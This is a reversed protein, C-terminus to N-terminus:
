RRLPPLPRGNVRVKGRIVDVVLEQTSLPLGLWLAVVTPVDRWVFDGDLRRRWHAQEEPDDLRAVRLEDLHRPDFILVGEGQVSVGLMPSDLDVRSIDLRPSDQLLAKFEPELREILERPTYRHAQMVEERLRSLLTRLAEAHLRSLQAEVRGTLLVQEEAVLEGLVLEGEIRLESDDLEMRSRYDLESGDLVLGPQRWTLQDLHLLDHQTFHYAGATYAYRSELNSPGAELTTDGDSLRLPKLRARLWWDGYEGGFTVQGGQFDLEREQQHIVFPSLGISGELTGGLTQYRAHWRPASSPLADGFLRQQEPGLTPHLEGDLRTSLVGHRASYTFALQWDDGLLPAIAVRGSSSLWGREVAVREVVLEGRAELDSLMRVLEREFLLSAAYQAVAWLSALGVVLPVILREKRM